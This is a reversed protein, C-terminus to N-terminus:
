EKGGSGRQSSLTKDERSLKASAGLGPLATSLPNGACQKRSPDPMSNRPAQRDGPADRIQGCGGIGEDRRHQLGPSRVVDCYNQDRDIKGLLITRLASM